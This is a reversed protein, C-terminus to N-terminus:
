VVSKRDAAVEKELATRYASLEAVRVEVTDAATAEDAGSDLGGFLLLLVGLLAGGVLLWLRGKERVFAIFGSAKGQKEKMM